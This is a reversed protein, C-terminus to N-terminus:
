YKVMTHDICLKIAEFNIIVKTSFWVVLPIMLVLTVVSTINIINYIKKHDIKKILIFLLLQGLIFGLTNLILDYISFCGLGIFLQILEISLSFFFALIPYLFKRIKGFLIPLMLGFPIFLLINLITDLLFPIFERHFAQFGYLFRDLLNYEMYWTRGPGFAMPNTEYGWGLLLPLSGAKFFVIILFLILYFSFTVLFLPRNVKKM